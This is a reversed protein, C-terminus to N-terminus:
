ETYTVTVKVSKSLINSSNAASNTIVINTPDVKLSFQYGATASHEQPVKYGTTYEVMASSHIINTSTLGHALSVSSGQSSGTTGTLIKQRIVTGDTVITTAQFSGSFASQIKVATTAGHQIIFRGVLITHRRILDPLTPVTAAEAEALNAYEKGMVYYGHTHDGDVGMFFWAVTYKAVGLSVVNTGNDVQTNSYQTVYQENWVGAVHYWHRLSHIASLFEPTEQRTAGYWVQGSSISVNRTGYESLLLGDYEEREFRKTRVLRHLLKSSLGDGLNGWSLDHLTTGQRYLTYVPIVDSWTIDTLQSTIFYEPDGNNYKIVLFSEQNDPVAMDDKAPIQYFLQQGSFDNTTKLVVSCAEISVTGDLNDTFVPTDGVVGPSYGNGVSSEFTSPDPIEHTLQVGSTIERFRIYVNDNSGVSVARFYVGETSLYVKRYTDSIFSLGPYDVWEPSTMTPTKPILYQIKIIGTTLGQIIFECAGIAPFKDSVGNADLLYDYIPM